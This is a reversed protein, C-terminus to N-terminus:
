SNELDIKMQEFEDKSIEGKAYRKKLIGIPSDDVNQVQEKVKSKQLPAVVDYIRKAWKGTDDYKLFGEDVM